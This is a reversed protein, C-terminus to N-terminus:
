RTELPKELVSKLGLFAPLPHTIVYTPIGALYDRFRGKAEFRERFASRDFGEGLRPVIGGGIYIGGFAGLTLALNGAVTGLMACFMAVAESCLPDAGAEARATVDAATVDEPTQGALQALGRYLNCLGMGSIVREASVHGLEERLIDLVRSERADSPAMTAHGGEGPLPHWGAPGAVLSAMGLGTGPGLVGIPAGSRAEGRGVQRHDEPGLLPVSLAQATFDNLVELRRLRLDAKLRAVSFSWPNNTMSVFDGLVPSAVAFAATVPREPPRVMALYAEAAEALSAHDQCSLIRPEMAGARGILAFRANTAGLDAALAPIDAPDTM